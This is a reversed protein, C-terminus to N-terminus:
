IDSESLYDRTKYSICKGPRKIIMERVMHKSKLPSKAIINKMIKLRKIAMIQFVSSKYM